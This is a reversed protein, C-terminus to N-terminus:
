TLHAEVFGQFQPAVTLGRVKKPTFWGGDDHESSVAFEGGTIRGSLILYAIRCDKKEWQATGLVDLVDIDFGTEEKTERILAEEFTEGPDIKGGPFEWLEPQMASGKARRMLLYRGKEDKLVVRVTLRYPKM